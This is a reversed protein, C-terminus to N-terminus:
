GAPLIDRNLPSGLMNRAKDEIRRLFVKLKEKEEETLSSFCMEVSINTLTRLLEEGEKTILITYRKEGKHRIKTVLRMAIM